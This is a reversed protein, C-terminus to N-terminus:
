QMIVYTTTTYRCASIFQNDSTVVTNRRLLLLSYTKRTTAIIAKRVKIQVREMNQEVSMHIDSVRILFSDISKRILKDFTMMARALFQTESILNFKTCEM